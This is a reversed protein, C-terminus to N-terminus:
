IYYYYYYNWVLMCQSSIICLSARIPLLVFCFYLNADKQYYGTHESRGRTNIVSEVHESLLCTNLTMWFLHFICKYWTTVCEPSGSCTNAHAYTRFCQLYEGMATKRKWGSTLPLKQKIYVISESPVWARLEYHVLLIISFLSQM